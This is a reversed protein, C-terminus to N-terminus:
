QLRELYKEGYKELSTKYWSDFDDSVKKEKWYVWMRGRLRESPSKKDLPDVLEPINLDEKTLPTEALALWVQRQMLSFIRATEEPQLEQTDIKISLTMDNNAKISDLQCSFQIPKM